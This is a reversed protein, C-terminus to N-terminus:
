WIDPFYVTLLQQNGGQSPSLQHYSNGTVGRQSLASAVMRLRERAQARWCVAWQTRARAWSLLGQDMGPVCGVAASHVRVRSAPVVQVTQWTRGPQGTAEKSVPGNPIVRARRPGLVQLLALLMATRIGKCGKLLPRRCMWHASRPHPWLQQARLSAISFSGNVTSKGLNVYWFFYNEMAVNFLWLTIPKDSFLTVGFDCYWCDFKRISMVISILIMWKWGFIM